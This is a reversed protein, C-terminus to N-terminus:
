VHYGELAIRRYREEFAVRGGEMVECITKRVEKKQLSGDCEKKTEGGRAVLAAVLEADGNVVINPNHTVVLIQRRRKVERLQTVILEYILHNDLDDEPQDLVLPEEGYSLLFALLAATKQGPSGEEISRLNRGDGTPSYQVDLSDEPFWLDLRDLTEPQLKAVHTAFRQDGLGAPDHTCAAIQRVRQKLTVLAKEIEESDGECAYLDGLLGGAGPSGIDKEFSRDQRQLLERLEGEVTERAGYPVVEIRVFRNSQLVSRLFARRAETLERRIELLRRLRGEAQERLRAVETKRDALAVVQREITQRRHVLEGYASPDGAGEQALRERLSEYTQVAVDVARKWASRDRAQRWDSLIEEAQGALAALSERLTDLRTRARDAETRLAADEESEANLAADLSDPVLEAAVERLRDGIGAWIEEWTEVARQQRRRRQFSQLLDAHGANEFISLKRKVDDLEGRLRPEEALGTEIERAKARLALFRSAEERWRSVWSRRDVDPAEDVVRLLALPTKAMHFIQKQSYLQIPFRVAVDGEARDWGGNSEEQIPDLDGSPNWQLRFRSGDKRYVVRIEADATLLGSEDRNARVTAYKDLESRLEVPLEGQRRLALRAFEILTSKGTGRGGIIANLWPNLRLEFPASRGMYYANSVEISEVALPAHENPDGRELDSRLVSLPGDLLALRLGELAPSGMKVWTYRSGPYYLEGAGPPHHSDSGLVEAWHLGKETYLQPKAASPDVLEMAFVERSSLAQELTKGQLEFLGKACDVHAPIAIGGARSIEAVVESITKSTVGDSSGKTGSFGVAGLLSAVDSTTTESGLVALVHIGGHVSIEVGPLLHIRRYGEPKEEALERLAAKLPDIWEGTNHDTIAVCDIGARMYDLLWERATRERLQKQQPGKGYDDSAPTHTHLDVRWWRSGNWSWSALTM